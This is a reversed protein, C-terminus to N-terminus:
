DKIKKFFDNIIQTVRSRSYGMHVAISKHTMGDVFRLELINREDGEPLSTIWQETKEISRELELIREKLEAARRDVAESNYGQIKIIPGKRADGVRATDGVYEVRLNELRKIKNNLERKRVLNLELEERTMEQM